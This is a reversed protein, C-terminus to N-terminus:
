AVYAVCFRDVDSVAAAMGDPRWTIHKSLLNPLPTHVCSAGDPTWLHLRCCWVCLTGACNRMCQAIAGHCCLM